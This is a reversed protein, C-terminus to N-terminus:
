DVDIKWTIQLSDGSVVNIASFTQRCLITGASSANFVGSETIALTATFSFTAVLQATDNTVDTTVLSATAATHATSATGDSQRETELATDTANFATTGIGIGIWGAAAPAGSANIRGAVLAKGVTPVGNSVQMESVWQGTLGQIRLGELAIKARLGEKVSGDSNYPTYNERAAELIMRGLKNIAFMPKVNGAADRLQYAVNEVLRMRGRQETKKFM